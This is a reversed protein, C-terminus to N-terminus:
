EHNKKIQKIFKQRTTVLLTFSAGVPCFYHCFFDSMFLSGILAAPLIYWQIGIGDLSFFMAFPEYSAITPNKSIFIIMLSFWLLYKPSQILYKSFSPAIKFNIGSIKNLLIQTAHFPCLANCYINKGLVLIAILNGFMLIWWILHHRIDPIFGLLVRSISSLSLSANIIFGIIIFSSFLTFYRLKKNKLYVALTAIILLAVVILEYTGIRWESGIDPLKMTFDHKAIQWAAERSAIAIANSSITAGSVAVIDADILFKDNLKKAVYQEFYEKRKLKELYAHTETNHILETNITNGLTDSLILVKLPGGYGQSQGTSVYGVLNNKHYATISGHEKCIKTILNEQFLQTKSIQDIEKSDSQGIYFSILLSVIAFGNIMSKKLNTFAM